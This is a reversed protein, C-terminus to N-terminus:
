GSKPGRGLDMAARQTESVNKGPYVHPHHAGSGSFMRWALSVSQVRQMRTLGPNLSRRGTTGPSDGSIQLSFHALSVCPSRLGRCWSVVVRVCSVQRACVNKEREEGERECHTCVAAARGRTQPVRNEPDRQRALISARLSVLERSSTPAEEGARHLVAHHTIRAVPAQFGRRYAIQDHFM